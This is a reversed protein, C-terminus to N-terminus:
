GACQNPITTPTVYVANFSLAWPTPNLGNPDTAMQKPSLVWYESGPANGQHILVASYDSNTKVFVCKPAATILKQVTTVVDGPPRRVNANIGAISEGAIKLEQAYLPDNYVARLYMKVTPTVKRASVLVRVADGNLHNLVKFVANVYAVTITAPVVDPNPAATTAPAPTTPSAQGTGGSCASATLALVGGLALIM